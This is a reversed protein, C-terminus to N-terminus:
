LLGRGRERKGGSMKRIQGGRNKDGACKQISKTNKNRTNLGRCGSGTEKEPAGIEGKGTYGKKESDNDISDSKRINEKKM